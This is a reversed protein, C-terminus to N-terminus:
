CGVIRSLLRHFPVLPEGGDRFRPLVDDFHQAM